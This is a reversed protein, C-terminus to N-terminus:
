LGLYTLLGPPMSVDLVFVFLAWLMAGGFLSTAMVKRSIKEGHYLMTAAILMVMSVLYGVTDVILLYAIGIGLLGAAWVIRRGQDKWEAQIDVRLRAVMTAVCLCAGLLVMVWGYARPVGGPGVIDDLATARLDYAFSLYVAGIVIAAIGGVFDRSLISQM